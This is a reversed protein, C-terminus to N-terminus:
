NANAAPSATSTAATSATNAPGASLTLTVPAGQRATVGAAPNTRIATDPTQPSSSTEIAAIEFGAGSIAKVAEELSQGSVNPITAQQDPAMGNQVSAAKPAEPPEAATETVRPVSSETNNTGSLAVTAWAVFGALALAALITLVGRHRRRRLTGFDTPSVALTRGVNHDDTTLVTETGSAVDGPIELRAQAQREPLMEGPGIDQFVRKRPKGSALLLEEVMETINFVASMLLSQRALITRQTPSFSVDERLDEVTRHLTDLRRDLEGSDPASGQRLQRRVTETGLGEKHLDRAERIREFSDEPISIRGAQRLHPISYERLYRYLTPRPIGLLGSVEDVTYIAGGANERLYKAFKERRGAHYCLTAVDEYCSVWRTM